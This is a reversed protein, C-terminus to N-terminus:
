YVYVVADPLEYKTSGNEDNPGLLREVDARTSKLPVIGRWEKGPCAKAGYAVPLLTGFAVRILNM